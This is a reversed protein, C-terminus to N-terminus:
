VLTAAGGINSALVQAVLLPRPDANMTKLLSITIPGMLLITTVNDLFASVFATVTLLLVTLLAMSGRALRLTGATM